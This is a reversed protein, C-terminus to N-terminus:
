LTWDPDMLGMGEQDGQNFLDHYGRPGNEVIEWCNHDLDWFYFSFAGHQHEPELVKKIDWKAADRQITKYAAMVDEKTEVDLGNHNFFSMEEEDDKIANQVLIMCYDGGGLRAIGSMPSTRVVSLGLFEEYFKLTEDIDFCELTGHSLFKPKLVSESKHTTMKEMGM